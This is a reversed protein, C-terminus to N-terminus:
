PLRVARYCYTLYPMRIPATLGAALARVESELQARREPTGVIYYSRSKVLEVLRDADTPVSHAFTALEIPAFQPGYDPDSMQTANGHQTGNDIIRTFEVVWDISEDRINWVAAFVGGPRLVRAIEPHAKERDFWHYCQGAVVVDAAGDPLPISEASGALAVVDPTRSTLQARMLPDPEVATVRAETVPLISRTLLGTGAGLDVVLSRNGPETTASGIVWRVADAPYGPRAGDYLAAVQGFSLAPVDASTV